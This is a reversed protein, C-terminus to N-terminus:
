PGTLSFHMDQVAHEPHKSLWCGNRINSVQLGREGDVVLIKLPEEFKCLTFVAASNYAHITIGAGGRVSSGWVQLFAIVHVLEM